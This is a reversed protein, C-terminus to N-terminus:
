GEVTPGHGHDPATTTPQTAAALQCGHGRGEGGRGSTKERGRATLSPPLPFIAPSPLPIIPDDM